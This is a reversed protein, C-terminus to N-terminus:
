IKKCKIKKLNGNYNIKKKCNIRFSYIIGELVRTIIDEQNHIPLVVSFEPISSNLIKEM